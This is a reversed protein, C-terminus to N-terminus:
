SDRHSHELRRAAALEENLRTEWEALWDSPARSRVEEITLLPADHLREGAVVDAVIVTIAGATLTTVTQAEVYAVADALLPAGTVGRRTPFTALKAGDRGSHFGLTRVIELGTEDSPLVHIAFAGSALVIDHTLSARSLQISLRPTEPLLSATIATSSILGNARGEHEATVAVIPGWLQDLLWATATV